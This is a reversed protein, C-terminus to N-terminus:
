YDDDDRRRPPQRRDEDRSSRRPQQGRDRSQGSRPAQGRDRDAASRGGASKGGTPKSGTAKGGSAKSGTSRGSREPAEGRSRASPQSRGSREKPAARDDRAPRDRDAREQGSRSSGSPRPKRSASGREGDRGSPRRQPEDDADVWDSDSETDAPKRQALWRIAGIVVTAGTTIAMTPFGTVLPVGLALLKSMMGSGAPLGKTLVVVVPITVALILPAQVTPGFLNRRRVMCVAGVCGIFYAAEFIKGLNGSSNMDIIAGIISLGLALLLCAWWPWGKASGFASRQGWETVDLGVDPDRRRDRTATVM